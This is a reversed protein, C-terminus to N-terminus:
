RFKKHLYIWPATRSIIEGDSLMVFFDCLLQLFQFFKKFFNILVCVFFLGCFCLNLLGAHLSETWCWCKINFITVRVIWMELLTFISPDLFNWWPPPPPPPTQVVNNKKDDVYKVSPRIPRGRSAIPGKSGKPKISKRPLETCTNRLFCIAVQSKGPPPPTQVGEGGEPNSM